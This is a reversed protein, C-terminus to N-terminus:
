GNPEMQDQSLSKVLLKASEVILPTKRTQQQWTPDDM